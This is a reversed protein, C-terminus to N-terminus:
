ASKTQGDSTHSKPHGVSVLRRSLQSKNTAGCTPCLWVWEHTEGPEGSVSLAVRDTCSRCAVQLISVIPQPYM